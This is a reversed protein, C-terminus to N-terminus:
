RDSTRSSAPPRRKRPSSSRWRACNTTRGGASTWATSLCGSTASRKRFASDVIQQLAQLGEGRRALLAEAGEGALNIRTGDATTEVHAELNLGMDKVVKAVFDAVQEQASM